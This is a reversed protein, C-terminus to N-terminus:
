EDTFEGFPRNESQRHVAQSDIFLCRVHIAHTKMVLDAPGGSADRFFPSRSSRKKPFKSM